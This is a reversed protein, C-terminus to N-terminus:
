IICRKLHSAEGRETLTAGSVQEAEGPPGGSVWYVPGAHEGETPISLFDVIDSIWFFDFYM